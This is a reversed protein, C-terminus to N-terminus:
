ATGPKGSSRNRREAISWSCRAMSWPRSFFRMRVAMVPSSDIFVFEFQERFQQLLEHMRKSSTAGGSQASHGPVSLFLNEASTPRIANEVDIQGALLDALGATNEMKLLMHCRPRRLDADIVLVRIGLQSFVIATNVLTTTKGEGRTASTMLM